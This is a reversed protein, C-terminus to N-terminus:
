FGADYDDVPDEGELSKRKIIGELTTTNNMVMKLHFFTFSILAFTLPLSVLTLLIKSAM